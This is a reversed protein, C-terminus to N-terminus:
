DTEAKHPGTKKRHYRKVRARIPRQIKWWRIPPPPLQSGGGELEAGLSRLSFGSFANSLEPSIIVFFDILKESLDINLDGSTM